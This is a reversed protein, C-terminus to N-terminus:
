HQTQPPEHTDEIASQALNMFAEDSGTHSCSALALAELLVAIRTEEESVGEAHACRLWRDLYRALYLRLNQSLEHVLNMDVTSEAM